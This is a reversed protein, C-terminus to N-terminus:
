RRASFRKINRPKLPTFQAMTRTSHDVLHFLESGSQHADLAGQRRIRPRDAVRGLISGWDIPRKKLASLNDNRSNVTFVHRLSTTHLMPYDVYSATVRRECPFLHQRACATCSSHEASSKSAPAGGAFLPAGHQAQPAGGVVSVQM